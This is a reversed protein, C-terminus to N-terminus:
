PHSALPANKSDDSGFVPQKQVLVRAACLLYPWVERAEERLSPHLEFSKIIYIVEKFSGAYYLM